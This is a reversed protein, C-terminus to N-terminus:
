GVYTARMSTAGAELRIPTFLNRHRTPDWQITEASWKLNRKAPLPAGHVREM